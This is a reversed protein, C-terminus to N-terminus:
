GNIEKKEKKFKEILMNIEKQQEETWCGFYCMESMMTSEFEKILYTLLTDKYNM